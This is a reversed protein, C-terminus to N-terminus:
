EYKKLMYGEKELELVLLYFVFSWYQQEGKKKLTDLVRQSIREKIIRTNFELVGDANIFRFRRREISRFIEGSINGILEEHTSGDIREGPPHSALFDRAMLIAPHESLLSKREPTEIQISNM